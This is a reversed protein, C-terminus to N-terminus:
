DTVVFGFRRLSGRRCWVVTSHCQKSAIVFMATLKISTQFLRRLAKCTKLLLPPIAAGTLIRAEYLYNGVLSLWAIILSFGIM